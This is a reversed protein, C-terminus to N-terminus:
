TEYFINYTKLPFLNLVYNMVCANFVSFFLKLQNENM